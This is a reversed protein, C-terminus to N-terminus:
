EIRLATMPDLRAARIAPLLSALLAVATLIVIVTVYTLPDTPSIGFLLARVLRGVMLATAVGLAIGVATVRMGERVVLFLMDVQRAGVALRTGIEQTRRHVSYSTVGYVGVAALLLAMGAFIAMLTTQFDAAAISESMVDQMSRIM